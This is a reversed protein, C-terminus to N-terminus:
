ELEEIARLTLYLDLENDDLSDLKPDDSELRRDIIGDACLIQSYNKRLSEMLLPNSRLKEISPVGLVNHISLDLAGGLLQFNEYSVAKNQWIDSLLSYDVNLYSSIAYLTDDESPDNASEGRIASVKQELGRRAEIALKGQVERKESGFLCFIDFAETVM